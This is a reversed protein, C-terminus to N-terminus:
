QLILSHILKNMLFYGLCAGYRKGHNIQTKWSPDLSIKSLVNVFSEDTFIMLPKSCYWFWNNSFSTTANAVSETQIALSKPMFEVLNPLYVIRFFCTFDMIQSRLDVLCINQMSTITVSLVLCIRIYYSCVSTQNIQITNGFQSRFLDV